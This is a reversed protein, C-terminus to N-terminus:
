RKEDRLGVLDVPHDLLHDLSRSELLTAEGQLNMAGVDHLEGVGGDLAHACQECAVLQSHVHRDLRDFGLDVRVTKLDHHAVQEAVSGFIRRRARVDVDVHPSVARLREYGHAIAAHADGRFVLLLEEGPKAPDFARRVDLAGPEAQPERALDRPHM